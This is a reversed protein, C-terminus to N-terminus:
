HSSGGLARLHAVSREVAERANTALFQEPFAGYLRDFELSALRVAINRVADPALPIVNPYSYM